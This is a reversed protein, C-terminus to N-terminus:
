RVCRPYASTTKSRSGTYGDSFGIVWAASVPNAAWDSSTWFFDIPTNPFADPDITPSIDSRDVITQLEKMSPLRWGGGDLNLMACYDRATTWPVPSKPAAQEWRLLTKTDLVVGNSAMYRGVPANAHSLHVWSATIAVAALIFFRNFHQPRSAISM